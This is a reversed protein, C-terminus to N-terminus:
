IEMKLPVGWFQGRNLPAMALYPYVGRTLVFVSRVITSYWVISSVLGTYWEEYAGNCPVSM